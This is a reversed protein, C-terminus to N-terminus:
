RRDLHAAASRAVAAGAALLAEPTRSARALVFAGELASLFELSLSRADVEDVGYGTFIAALESLWGEFVDHCALRLRESSGATELAVTAIPCADAWGSAAVHEAALAFMREINTPLDATPDFGELALERYYGASSRVVEEALAEKGGPFHHYLSGFPAGAESVIQKLGVGYGHRRFLTSSTDLIRQRTSTPM